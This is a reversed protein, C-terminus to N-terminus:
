SYTSEMLFLGRLVLHQVVLVPFDLTAALADADGGALLCYPAVGERAQLMTCMHQVAGGLAALAGSHVADATATPFDSWRGPADGVAATGASLAARMMGLGPVILGGLFGGDASLADVTLATGAIAVVCPARYENWAALLAAWRDTGLQQPRVYGNRVGCASAGVSAWVVPFALTGCLQRLNDATKADAVCSILVRRCGPFDRWDHALRAIDDNDVTGHRLLLGAADFVGWKTRSNGADVTLIM